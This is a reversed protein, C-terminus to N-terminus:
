CIAVPLKALNLVALSPWANWGLQPSIPYSQHCAQPSIPTPTPYGRYSIVPKHLAIWSQLQRWKVGNDVEGAEDRLRVWDRGGGPIRFFQNRRARRQDLKAILRLGLLRSSKQATRPLQTPHRKSFGRQDDIIANIETKGGIGVSNM